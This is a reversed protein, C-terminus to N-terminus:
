DAVNSRMAGFSKKECWDGFVVVFECVALIFLSGPRLRRRWHLMWFVAAERASGEVACVSSTRWGEFILGSSSACSMPPGESASRMFCAMCAM